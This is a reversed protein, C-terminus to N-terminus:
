SKIKYQPIAKECHQSVKLHVAFPGLWVFMHIREGRYQEHWTTEITDSEKHGMSQLGGPEEDMPNELCFYQLPHGHRGRPSRGLGPISGTDRLDRVSAPEKSNAGGPFGITYM